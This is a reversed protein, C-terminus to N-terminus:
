IKSQKSDNRNNIKKDLPFTEFTLYKFVNRRNGHKLIEIGRHKQMEIIKFKQIEIGVNIYKQMDIDGHKKRYKYVEINRWKQIERHSYKQAKGRSM